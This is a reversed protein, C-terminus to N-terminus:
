LGSCDFTNDACPIGNNRKHLAMSDQTESSRFQLDQKTTAKVRSKQNSTKDSQVPKQSEGYESQRM